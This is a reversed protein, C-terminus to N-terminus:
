DEQALMRYLYYVSVFLLFGSGLALLPGVYIESSRQAMQSGSFGIFRRLGDYLGITSLGALLAFPLWRWGAEGAGFGLEDAIPPEMYAPDFDAPALDDVFVPDAPPLNVQNVHGQGQLPQRVPRRRDPGSHGNAPPVNEPENPDALASVARTIEDVTPETQSQEVSGPPAGSARSANEGLIRTLREAVARAAAQPSGDREISRSVRVRDSDTRAEVVIPTERHPPLGALADREPRILAGPMAVRGSPHELFM